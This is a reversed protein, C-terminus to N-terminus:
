HSVSLLLDRRVPLVEEGAMASFTIAAIITIGEYQESSLVFYFNNVNKCQWTFWHNNNIKTESIHFSYFFFFSYKPKLQQSVITEKYERLDTDYFHYKQGAIWGAVSSCQYFDFKIKSNDLIMKKNNAKNLLYMKKQEIITVFRVVLSAYVWFLYM